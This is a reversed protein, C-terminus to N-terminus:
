IRGVWLYIGGRTLLVFSLYFSSYPLQLLLKEEKVLSALLYILYSAQNQQKMKRRMESQHLLVVVQPQRPEM